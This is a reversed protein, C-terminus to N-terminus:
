YANAKGRKLLELDLGLLIEVIREGARGDGFVNAAPYRGKALVARIAAEIAGGDVPVDTVNANRQRLNQRSGINVVPTGFTAAEIIGSSSNGVMADAAKLLSVFDERPLHSFLLIDGADASREMAARVGQSGADSNPRLAVFQVGTAKAAGLIAETDAGANEAEDLVPHYVLLVIPRSPDLGYAEALAARDRIALATLGDLGPAGIVHVSDVAEGMRILRERSEETAVLHVRALKSIAHRVPEDVTGSREGGHVHVLPISLHAAAIAGALMEGRDGLVMVIDPRERDMLGTMGILMRGINASMLAGSPEGDEIPVRAVSGLGADEVEAVTNGYQPLLHMGTAIVSLELGPHAVIKHLTSCILGFDARTGSVYCVRRAAIM